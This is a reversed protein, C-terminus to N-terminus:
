KTQSSPRKAQDTVKSSIRKEIKDLRITLQNIEAILRHSNEASVEMERNSQSETIDGIKKLESRIELLSESIQVTRELKRGLEQFSEPLTKELPQHRTQAMVMISVSLLLVFAYSIGYTLGTQALILKNARVSILRHNQYVLALREAILRKKYDVGPVSQGKFIELLTQPSLDLAEERTLVALLRILSLSFQLLFLAGLIVLPISIWFPVSLSHGSLFALMGIAVASYFSALGVLTKAKDRVHEARSWATSTYQDVVKFLLEYKGQGLPQAPLEGLIDEPSQYREGLDKQPDNGPPDLTPWLWDGNLPLRAKFDSITRLIAM